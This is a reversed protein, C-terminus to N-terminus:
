LLPPPSIRFRSSNKKFCVIALGGFVYSVSLLPVINDIEPISTRSLKSTEPNEMNGSHPRTDPALM